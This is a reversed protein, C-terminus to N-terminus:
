VERDSNWSRHTLRIARRFAKEVMRQGRLSEGLIKWARLVDTPTNWDQLIPLFGTVAVAAEEPRGDLQLTEAWDLMALALEVGTKLESHIEVRRGFCEVARRIDGEARAIKGELHLRRGETVPGPFALYLPLCQIYLRKAERTRGLENMLFARIHRGILELRSKSGDIFDLGRDVLELGLLPDLEGVYSAQTILLRAELERDHIARAQRVASTLLAAALELHGLGNELAARLSLHDIRVLPDSTLEMLDAAHDLAERAARFEGVVRSANGLAGYAAVQAETVMDESSDAPDLREAIEVALRATRLADTPASHVLERAEDSVREAMARFHYKPQNRVMLMRQDPSLPQLRSWLDSALRREALVRDQLAQLSEELRLFLGGYNFRGAEGGEGRVVGFRKRRATPRGPSREAGAAGKRDKDESNGSM